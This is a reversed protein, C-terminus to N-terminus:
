PYPPYPFLSMNIFLIACFAAVPVVVLIVGWRTWIRQVERFQAVSQFRRSKWAMENGKFLLVFPMIWGAYPILCLLGIWV